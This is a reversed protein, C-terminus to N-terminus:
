YELHQVWGTANHEAQLPASYLPGAAVLKDYLVLHAQVQAMAVYDPGIGAEVIATM